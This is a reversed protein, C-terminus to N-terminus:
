FIRRCCMVKSKKEIIGNNIHIRDSLAIRIKEKTSDSQHKGYMSNNSGSHDIVKNVKEVVPKKDKTGLKWGTDLYLQIVDDSVMKNCSGNNIFHKGYNHHKDGKFDAHSISINRKHEETLVKGISGERIRQKHHESLKRGSGIVSLKQKTEESLRKGVKCDKMKKLTEDSHKRGYMGNLKGSLHIGYMPNNSGSSRKSLDECHKKYEEESFGSINNNHGGEAVNYFSRLKCANYYSIWYVERDNLEDRSNCEEILEVEFNDLGYKKIALKIYKGSGLYKNGLFIESTKQGIYRKGNILNTTIYIYGHM